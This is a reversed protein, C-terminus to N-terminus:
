RIQLGKIEPELLDSLQEQYIQLYSITIQYVIQNNNNEQRDKEEFIQEVARPIIGRRSYDNDMGFGEMTYTKGTGTQGYAIITSNYGAMM